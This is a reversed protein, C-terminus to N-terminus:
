SGYGHGHIASHQTDGNLYQLWASLGDRNHRELARVGDRVASRDFLLRRAVGAMEQVDDNDAQWSAPAWDIAPSVVSAVGMAIGDATTVNFSETYSPQMLLHMPRVYKTKFAPWPAWHAEHLKRTSEGEFLKRIARLMVGGGDERGGSVWFQLDVRLQASVEMAAWAASLINKLPRTAGYCGIKLVGGSYGPADTRITHDLYYLNPLWGCPAEFTEEVARVFAESNGTIHINWTSIAAHILEKFIQVGNSDAQLFGINSHFNVTFDVNPLKYALRQLEVTPIWPASIVVHTIHKHKDLMARLDAVSNVDWPFCEIGARRLVRCTNQAAVGLGIHSIGRINAFNKHVLAVAIKRPPHSSLDAPM